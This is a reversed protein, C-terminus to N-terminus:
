LMTSIYAIRRVSRDNLGRKVGTAVWVEVNLAEWRINTKM